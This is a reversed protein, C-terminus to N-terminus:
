RRRRYENFFTEFEEFESELKNLEPLAKEKESIAIAAVLAGILSMPASFSDIYSPVQTDAFLSLEAMQSIPSLQNDTIAILRVDRLRIKKTIEVLERSYRKFSIAVLVDNQGIDHIQEPIDGVGPKITKVSPLFFRLYSVFYFALAYSGRLGLVYITRASCLTEVAKMFTADSINKTLAHINEIDGKLIEAFVSNRGEFADVSESLRKATTLNKVVMQGMKRKFESVGSFGLAAIFRTVTAESVNVRNAIQNLNLLLIDEPNRFFYQAVIQQSPPLNEYESYIKDLIAEM